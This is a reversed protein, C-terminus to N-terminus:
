SATDGFRHVAEVSGDERRVTLEARKSRLFEHAHEVAEGKDKFVRTARKAGRKRLEWGSATPSLDYHDAPPRQERSDPPAGTDRPDAVRIGVRAERGPEGKAAPLRAELVHEGAPFPGLTVLQGRAIEEGDISWRVQELRARSAPLAGTLGARCDVPDWPSIEREPQPEIIQLHGTVRPMELPESLEAASRLGTSYLVGIRGEEGPGATLDVELTELPEGLYVTRPRDETTTVTVAMWSEETLPEFRLALHAVGESIRKVRLEVDPEPGLPREAVVRDEDRIRISEAEPRLAIQGHVSWRPPGPPPDPPQFRRLTARVVSRGEEDLLEAILPEADSRRGHPASLEPARTTYSRRLHFTGDPDLKARIVLVETM